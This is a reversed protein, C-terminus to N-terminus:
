SGSCQFSQEWYLFSQEWDAWTSRSAPSLRAEMAVQIPCVGLPAYEELLRELCRRSLGKESGRKSLGKESGKKVTLGM